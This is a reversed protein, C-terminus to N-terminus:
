VGCYECCYALQNYATENNEKVDVATSVTKNWTPSWPDDEEKTEHLMKAVREVCRSPDGHTKEMRGRELQYLHWLCVWTSQLHSSIVHLAQWQVCCEEYGERRINQSWSREQYKAQCGNAMSQALIGDMPNRADISHDAWRLRRIWCQVESEPKHRIRSLHNKRIKTEEKATGHHKRKVWEICFSPRKYLAAKICRCHMWIFVHHMYGVSPATWKFADM